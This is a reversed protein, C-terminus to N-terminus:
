KDASTYVTVLLDAIVWYGGIYQGPWNILRAIILNRITFTFSHVRFHICLGHIFLSSIMLCITYDMFFSHLFPYQTIWGDM